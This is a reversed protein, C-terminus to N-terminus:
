SHHSACLTPKQKLEPNGPLQGRFVREQVWMKATLVFRPFSGNPRKACQWSQRNCVLQHQVLCWQFLIFSDILAQFEQSSCIYFGDVSAM